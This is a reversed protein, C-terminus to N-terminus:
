RQDMNKGSQPITICVADKYFKQIIETLEAGERIMRDATYLSIGFGHGSGKVTVRMEGKATDADLRFSSSPLHLLSRFAEGQWERSGIIVRSVYDAKDREMKIPESMDTGTIDRWERESLQCIQLYDGSEKDYPCDAALVYAYEEGLLVGERTRGASVAHYPLERYAGGISIVQGRTRVVADYMRSYDSKYIDCPQAAREANEERVCDTRYLIATLELTREDMWSCDERMLRSLVQYELEPLAEERHVGQKGDILLTMTYPLFLVLFGIAAANKLLRKM